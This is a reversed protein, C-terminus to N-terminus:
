RRPDDGVTDCACSRQRRHRERDHTAVGTALNIKQLGPETTGEENAAIVYQPSSQPWLVMQDLNPAANGASIVKAKLGNALTVLGAPNALAQADDLDATSSAELPNNVGFFQESHAALRQETKAGFDISVTAGVVGATVLLLAAGIGVWLTRQRM